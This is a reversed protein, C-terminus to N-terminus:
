CRQFEPSMFLIALAQPRNEARLVAERTESSLFDGLTDDMIKIPDSRGNLQSWRAAIDLRSVLNEPSGWTESNDSFGNPGPPNWLPQGLLEMAQLVAPTDPHRDVARLIGVIYLLPSRIKQLPMSWSLPDLILARIVKLLDGDSLLFVSAIKNVLEEPPNESLFHRCIKQAINRATAAHKALDNLVSIGQGIDTEHYEKGLVSHIGPEHRVPSFTFRGGYIADETPGVITWGTLIRAFQTVDNQSYGGNVGLTHLELIERALNENLGRQNQRGVRSNPGISQVNDLYILMSPHQVVAKLMDSFRGFIFPRIAEREFSGATARVASGKRIAISFHNTWFLVLREIFPHETTKLADFKAAAEDRFTIQEFPPEPKVNSMNETTVAKREDERLLEGHRTKRLLEDTKQFRSSQPQKAEIQYLINDKPNRAIKSLEGPRAGLGFRHLAILSQNPLAM